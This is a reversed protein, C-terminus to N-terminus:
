RGLRRLAAKITAATDQPDPVSLTLFRFQDRGDLYIEIIPDGRRACVLLGGRADLVHKKSAFGLPRGAAARSVHDVPVTLKWPEKSSTLLLADGDTISVELNGGSVEVEIM